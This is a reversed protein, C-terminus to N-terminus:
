GHGEVRNIDAETIRRQGTVCEHILSKRYATLTAIQIEICGFLSRQKLDHHEIKAVIERQVSVKPFPIRILGLDSHSLGQRSAGTFTSLIQDQGMPSSLFAALFRHDACPGPRIVCVHQNVNGEGFGDPVFTCRGISAGTINLLVDRPKVQSGNMRAHTEASICAVDDLRLGDFHVNQSRILPIGSDLYGASGGDPTVGSTIKAAVDKVRESIAGSHDAFFAHIISKRLADLTELQRRKAAVAADIAACSADLYAAIRQQEMPPADAWPIAELKEATLHAITTRSVIADIFGAHKINYLWYYLFRASANQRPRVRNVANQFYCEDLGGTWIACRGVDGGENVLLDGVRLLLEKKERPAFWMTKIDSVDVGEWQVNASRVYPEETEDPKGQEPQLMKGLVVEFGRKLIREQWPTPFTKQGNITLPAAM